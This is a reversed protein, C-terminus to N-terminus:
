SNGSVYFYLIIQGVIVIAQAVVARLLWKLNDKLPRYELHIARVEESVRDELTARQASLNEAFQQPSIQASSQTILTQLSTNIQVMQKEFSDFRDQLSVLQYGKVYSELEAQTKKSAM